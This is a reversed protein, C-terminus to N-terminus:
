SARAAYLVGVATSAAPTGKVQISGGNRPLANLRAVVRMTWDEPEVKHRFLACEFEWTESYLERSNNRWYFAEPDRSKPLRPMIPVEPLWARAGLLEPRQMSNAYDLASNRGLADFGAAGLLKSRDSLLRSMESGALQAMARELPTQAVSRHQGSTNALKSTPRPRLVKKWKPPPPASRLASPKVRDAAVPREGEEADSEKENEKRLLLGAKAQFSVWVDEAAAVGVNALALEFQAEFETEQLSVPLTEMLHRASGLWSEYNANYASIQADTPAAWDFPPEISAIDFTLGPSEPTINAGDDIPRPFETVRPHRSRLEEILEAIRSESLAPYRVVDIRVEKAPKGSVSCEVSIAPGQRVEKLEQQLQRIEKDRSDTEQPLEWGPQMSITTLGHRKGKWLPGADATLLTCDNSNTVQRFALVDAVYKDDGLKSVELEKPAVWGAPRELYLELTVKPGVARLEKPKQTEVLERIIATWKRARDQSRGRLEFKKKDLEGLTNDCIVLRVPDDPTVDSWPIDSPDKFHLFFNTDPFLIM